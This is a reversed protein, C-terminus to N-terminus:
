NLKVVHGLDVDSRPAIPCPKPRVRAEINGLDIGLMFAVHALDLSLSPAVHGINLGREFAV